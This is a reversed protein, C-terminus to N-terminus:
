FSRTMVSDYYSICLFVGDLAIRGRDLGGNCIMCCHVCCNCKRIPGRSRAIGAMEAKECSVRVNVPILEKNVIKGRSISRVRRDHSLAAYNLYVTYFFQYIDTHCEMYPCRLDKIFEFMSLIQTFVCSQVVNGSGHDGRKWFLGHEFCARKKEM